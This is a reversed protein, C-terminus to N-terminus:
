TTPCSTKVGADRAPSSYAGPGRNAAPPTPPRLGRQHRHAHAVHEAASRRPVRRARRLRVYCEQVIDEAENDDKVISRALRFLRRNNQGIIARVADEDHRRARTVLDAEAALAGKTIESPM